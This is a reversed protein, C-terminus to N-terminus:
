IAITKGIAELASERSRETSNPATVKVVLTPVCQSWLNVPLEAVAVSAVCQAASSPRATETGIAEIIQPRFFFDFM